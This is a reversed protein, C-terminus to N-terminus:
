ACARYVWQETTPLNMRSRKLDHNKATPLLDLGDPTTAKLKLKKADSASPLPPQMFAPKTPDDVVLTWALDHDRGTLRRIGERWFDESQCPSDVGERVMVAAALYCLFIHFPDEQHRQVGPLGTVEDNGLGALLRPLNFHQTGKATDVSLLPDTLLNM